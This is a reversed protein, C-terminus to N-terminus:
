ALLYALIAAILLITALRILIRSAPWGAPGARDTMEADAATDNDAAAAPEPEPETQPPAEMAEGLRAFFQEALKSAVGDILRGGLQALKGGISASLQYELVTGEGDAELVVRASGNAFGAAGGQGKGHIVYRNPPDLDSLEISFDFGAKVPGIRNTIRAAYQNEGTSEFSECGPIAARLMEPDTLADWVRERSAAISQRGTMEM